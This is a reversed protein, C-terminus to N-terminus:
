KRERLHGKNLWNEIVDAGFRAEIWDRANDQADNSYDPESTLYLLRGVLEKNGRDLGSSLNLINPGPFDGHHCASYLAHAMLYAANCRHLYEIQAMMENILATRTQPRDTIM